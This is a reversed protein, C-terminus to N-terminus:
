YNIHFNGNPITDDRPLHDQNTYSPFGRSCATFCHEEYAEAERGARINAPPASRLLRLHFLSNEGLQKLDHHKIMGISLLQHRLPFAIKWHLTIRVMTLDHIQKKLATVDQKQSIQRSQEELQFLLCSTSQHFNSINKFIFTPIRTM